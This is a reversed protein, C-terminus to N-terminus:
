LVIKTVLPNENDLMEEIFFKNDWFLDLNDLESLKKKIVNESLEGVPTATYFYVVNHFESNNDGQKMFENVCRLKLNKIDCSAQESVYKKLSDEILNGSLVKGGFLILSNKEPERPKKRFYIIGNDVLAVCCVVFVPKQEDTIIPLYPYITKGSDSLAYFTSDSIKDKKVFSSDVLISLHYSLDNSELNLSKKLENFKIGSSESCDHIKRFINARTKTFLQTHKM